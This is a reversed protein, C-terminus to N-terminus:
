LIVYFTTGLGEHSEVGVHGGLREIIHLVLWLGIGMGQYKKAIGSDLQQFKEFLRPIDEQRIGIGSDRIDIRIQKDPVPYAHVEIKGQTPTFKIANSILHFLVRKFQVPDTQITAVAPNVNIHLILHKEQITVCHMAKIENLLSLISIGTSRTIPNMHENEITAIYLMDHIMQSLHNASSLIANLFYKQDSLSTREDSMLNVSGSIEALPTLLEHSMNHLFEYKVQNAKVLEGTRKEVTLELDEIYQRLQQKLEWKKILCSASQVIEIPDFPKKLILFNDSIKLQGVIDHWSYDSYATCIVIQINPDVEWIHKITEVGDWGPSMRIDVFALAYPQKSECAKKVLEVGEEGQYASDLQYPLTTTKNESLAVNKEFLISKAKEFDPNDTPTNFIKRFDNHIDIMDDILLIRRQLTNM